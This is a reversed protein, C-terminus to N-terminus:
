LSGGGIVIIIFKQQKGLSIEVVVDDHTDYDCCAQWLQQKVVLPPSIHSNYNAILSSSQTNFSFLLSFLLLSPSKIM